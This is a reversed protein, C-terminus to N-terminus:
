KMLKNFWRQLDEKEKPRLALIIDFEKRAEDKNGTHILAAVLSQRYDSDTPDLRVAARLEQIAENWQEERVLQNGIYYHFDPDQPDLQLARRWIATAKRVEDMQAYIRGATRLIQESSPALTLAQQIADRAQSPRDLLWLANAKAEFAFADEPMKQLGEELLPLAMTAAQFTLFKDKQAEQVLALGMNRSATADQSDLLDQFFNVIPREKPGLSKLGALSKDPRRRIRHDTAATHAIDASPFRAMHCHICSDQPTAALRVQKLEKCSNEEHCQLCRERFYSVRETAPPLAHPDHCSICGMKGNSARFCRSVYMQEVQSVARYNGTLRPPLVFVAWFEHLPLGPRYDFAQRGPPLIRNEALLHCQQCVAERLASPLRAPNVITDDTGESAQNQEQKQVHLEGPGHCRECGIAYGEFVPPHYRNITGAVPFARNSHCFLCSPSIKRGALLKPQLEFGPSIDWVHGQSFWSIPSQFLFGDRNILYSRGRTGSGLVFEVPDEHELITKGNADLISQKHFDKGDRPQVFLELDFQEFPRFPNHAEKGYRQKGAIEAIPALARGM